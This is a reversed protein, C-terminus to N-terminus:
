KQTGFIKVIDGRRLRDVIDDYLVQAAYGDGCGIKITVEDFLVSVELRTPKILVEDM